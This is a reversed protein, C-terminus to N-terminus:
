VQINYKTLLKVWMWFVGEQKLLLVLMYLSIFEMYLKLYNFSVHIMMKNSDLNINPSFMIGKKNGACVFYIKCIKEKQVNM